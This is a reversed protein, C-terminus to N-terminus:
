VALPNDRNRKMRQRPNPPPRIAGGGIESDAAGIGSEEARGSQHLGGFSGFGGFHVRHHLSERRRDQSFFRRLRGDDAHDRQLLALELWGWGEVSHYFLAGGALLLIVLYVLGRTEPDKLLARTSSLFRWILAIFPIPM